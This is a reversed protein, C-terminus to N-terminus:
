GCGAIREVLTAYKQENEILEKQLANIQSLLDVRNVAPVVLSLIECAQAEHSLAFPLKQGRNTKAWEVRRLLYDDLIKAIVVDLSPDSIPPKLKLLQYARWFDQQKVMSMHVRIEDGDYYVADSFPKLAKRLTDLEVEITTTM